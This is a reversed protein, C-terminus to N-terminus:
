TRLKEWIEDNSLKSFFRRRDGAAEDFGCITSYECYMCANDVASKYYPSCEVSGSQIERAANRLMDGVHKSLVDLQEKGVLRDGTFVGDKTQKVPVYKKTEGNEMAEIVSPDNLVLGDRRSVRERMKTLQEESVNRPAKLVEERAPVYLVGAPTIEGGFHAGGYKQLAFLYILMQMDRGYLVDSLKFTKKGTKYDIVRLYTKGDKEFVDVRDVLGRLNLGDTENGVAGNLESLELEFGFPEFDSRKLEDLMDLVVHLADEGLRRFLYVLRADAGEFDFLKEHVFREIYQGTLTKCLEEDANKFGTSAKIGRSVGDLVYHMFIGAEPADFGARVRSKLKLGNSMFYAYPCSYYKDVRSASLAPRQGYLQLAASQSLRGRGARQIVEAKELREALTGATGSFYERAALAMPSDNSSGALSALEFCSTESAIMYEEARLRIESVGFMAKIRKVIFSPREGGRGPYSVILERSPLTLASYIMNMERFLREELGAPPGDALRSLEEHDKDSLIGGDKSLTPLNDDTAGLVILCKMDRRRSMTMSGLATRDLSVPIVGVDYQSLTLSFLKRFEAAGLKSDGLIETMQDMANIIVDWTQAYEEALRIEGRKKLEEAKEALSEPLAIDEFFGQLATLKREIETDGKIGDSLRFLPKTIRNRLDNLRALADTHGQEGTVTRNSDKVYGSPPLTWDRGWTTGRINWIVVYNELEACTEPAIGALGTKLYRFVQRYEWGYVAIELAADILAAPPKDLVDTRGSSFFPVGYKEFVNECIQGYESWDRAMVSIDRWRYGGRVLERVKHAAYECEEYRSQASYLTIAGSEGPFVVPAHEFLHKELFILEEEKSEQATGPEVTRVEAGYEDALRRLRQATRRPIEFVEGDGDPAYTLCVTLQAKKRILEEIINMEQITFDNFGDFFIHGTDGVTSEYIKDALLSLRDAMDSGFVHLFADYASHIISLDRLKDALPSSVRQAMDGLMEPSINLAKFEDVAKLLKELMEARMGDAGFMKLSRAVQEHARYMVLIQGGADLVNAPAGGTEPFVRGCLRTFSLTEGFLSLRDGCVACLQREAEHSYQEPVILLLGTEGAEMRRRIEGLVYATKGTGARGTVLNLM